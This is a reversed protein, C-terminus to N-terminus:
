AIRVKLAGSTHYVQGLAVGGAAAATDDAFNLNAYNAIQLMNVTTCDAVSATINRGLAVAGAANSTTSQGIAVGRDGSVSVDRGLGIARDATLSITTGIGIKDSGVTDITIGSGIGTSRDAGTISVDSGIAHGQGSFIQAQYGIAVTRGSATRSDNGIVVTGDSGINSTTSLQRGVLVSRQTGANISNNFYGINVSESGPLSNSVGIAVNNAGSANASEGIAIGRGGTASSFYGLAVCRENNATTNRGIAINGRDFNDAGGASASGGIAINFGSTAEAGNGLAVTDNASADAATTTLSSASQLSDPGTGNVMGAAGGPLGTVTANTFDVNTAPAGPFGFGFNFTGNAITATGALADINTLGTLSLNSSNLDIVRTGSALTLIDGIGVGTGDGISIPLETGDGYQLKVPPFPAGGLNNATKILGQYSQDIQENQLSAM